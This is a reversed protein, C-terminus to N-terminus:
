KDLNEIVTKPFLYMSMHYILTSTLSSNIMTTRGAISLSNGRWASLKKKNKEQLPTWDKIHLRSPSVPVGLYKIPFEGSHCNFLEMYTNLKNEDGNILFVESKSFNIKLGSM